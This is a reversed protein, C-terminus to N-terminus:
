RANTTPRRSSLVPENGPAFNWICLVHVEGDSAADLFRDQSISYRYWALFEQLFTGGCRPPIGSLPPSLRRDPPCPLRAVAQRLSPCAQALCPSSARTAFFAHWVEFVNFDREQRYNMAVLRRRWRYFSTVPYREGSLYGLRATRYFASAGQRDCDSWRAVRLCRM